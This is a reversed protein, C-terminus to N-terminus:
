QAPSTPRSEPRVMSRSEIGSPTTRPPAGTPEPHDAPLRMVQAIADTLDPHVPLRHRLREQQLFDRVRSSDACVLHVVALQEDPVQGVCDLCHLGAASLLRVHTLDIIVARYTRAAKAVATALAAIEIPTGLIVAVPRYQQPNALLCPPPMPRTTAFTNWGPAPHADIRGGQVANLAAFWVLAAAV